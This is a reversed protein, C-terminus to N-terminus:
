NKEAALVDLFAAKLMEYKQLSIEFVIECDAILRLTCYHVVGRNM